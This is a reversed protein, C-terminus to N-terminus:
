YTITITPNAAIRDHDIVWGALESIEAFALPVTISEDRLWDNIDIYAANTGDLARDIVHQQLSSVASVLYSAIRADVVSVQYANYFPMLLDIETELDNSLVILEVADLMEGSTGDILLKTNAFSRSVSIYDPTTIVAM